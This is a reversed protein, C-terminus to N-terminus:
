TPIWQSILTGACILHGYKFSAIIRFVKRIFRFKYSNPAYIAVLTEPQTNIDCAVIAYRAENDLFDKYHFTVINHIALLFGRNKELACALLVHPYDRHSCKPVNSAQFHRQASLIDAKIKCAERRKSFCKTSHNLGRANFSQCQLM